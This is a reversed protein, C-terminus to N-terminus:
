DVEEASLSLEKKLRTVTAVYDFYQLLAVRSDANLPSLDLLTGRQDLMEKIRMVEQIEPPTLKLSRYEVRDILYDTMVHFIDAIKILMDYDPQRNGTEYNALCSRSIGLEKALQGQSKGKETRLMKLKSPFSTKSNKRM